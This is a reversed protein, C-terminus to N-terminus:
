KFFIVGFLIDICGYYKKDTKVFLLVLSNLEHFEHQFLSPSCQCFTTKPLVGFWSLDKQLIDM